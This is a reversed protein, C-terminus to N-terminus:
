RLPFPYMIWAVLIAGGVMCLFLMAGLKVIEKAERRLLLGFFISVLLSFIAMIVFHSQM